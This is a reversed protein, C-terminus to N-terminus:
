RLYTGLDAGDLADISFPFGMGIRRDPSVMAGYNDLIATVTRLQAHVRGALPARPDNVVDPHEISEEQGPNPTEMLFAYAGTHDGFERHSLGHFEEQSAEQKVVIGDMELDLTAMAGIELARQHCVLMNALRSTISSEHMDIVVDVGETEALQFLAYSIQETLTGDAKGPHNRNLNRAESGPLEGGFPHVFVEPDPDQDETATLRSGYRFRRIEGPSPTLEVWQPSGPHRPGDNYRAASNNAHPIVFVTGHSVAGREVVLTAALVGAIENAHTGGLLLLTGGETDGQMVYVPTDGSTNALAPLYDSLWRTETVGYGPRIDHSVPDTASAVPGAGSTVPDVAVGVSVWVMAVIAALRLVIVRRRSVTGPSGM